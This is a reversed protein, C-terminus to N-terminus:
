AERNGNARAILDTEMVRAMHSILRLLDPCYVSPNAFGSGPRYRHAYLGAGCVRHVACRRCDDALALEGLQRAAVSPLALAADFPDRAVHLGTVPAGSYASKLIDSQEISGDTEVVVVTVPSLGVSESASAGGLLLHMLEGFLRVRTEQRPAAYWHDFVEILWDAYPTAASGPHRGPPPATWNGHPLLFDIAPPDFELLAAYTDLPPNRLDVTCLLGSFLHRHRESLLRVNAAVTDYSGAGHAYRRHRDNAVSDGDLSVGVHVGLRDLLELHAALRVGNTQLAMRVEVGPGVAERITTVTETIAEPGALLPEGGHLVVDISTLGHSRVHEGIRSATAAVVESSMRLPRDRWSQDAMAYVYCYDCALDCRSHIKLVFERFPRPRWGTRVLRGVDLSAPWEPVAEAPM